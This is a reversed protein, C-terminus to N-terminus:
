TTITVNLTLTIPGSLLNNFNNIDDESDLLIVTATGGSEPSGNTYNLTDNGSLGFIDVTANNSTIFDNYKEALVEELVDLEADKECSINLTKDTIVTNIDIQKFIKANIEGRVYYGDISYAMGSKVTLKALKIQTGEVHQVTGNDDDFYNIDVLNVLQDITIKIGILSALLLLKETYSKILKFVGDKTGVETEPVTIGKKYIAPNFMAYDGEGKILDDVLKLDVEKVEKLTFTVEGKVLKSTSTAVVKISGDKKDSKSPAVFSSFTIDIDKEVSLNDNILLQKIISSEASSQKEDEVPAIKSTEPLTSLDVVERFILSFTASGKLKTSNAAPEVKISGPNSTSTAANFGSFLLDSEVYNKGSFKKNVADLVAKKALAENNAAPSLKLDDGTITSLDSLTDNYALEFSASGKLKTSNAAPEVKISGPNSTSTAANFGSFLLDSEVYNKGSFKKNVADLVAKKASAEDNAAPSLKLDDGTITSLDSKKDTNTEETAPESNGCSVVAASTTAVLSMSTLLCLLKKM